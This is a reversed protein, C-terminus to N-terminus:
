KTDNTSLETMIEFYLLMREMGNKIRLGRKSL